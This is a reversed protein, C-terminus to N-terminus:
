LGHFTGFAVSPCKIDEDEVGEPLNLPCNKWKTSKQREVEKKGRLPAGHDKIVIEFSNLDDKKGIKGNGRFKAKGHKDTKFGSLNFSPGDNVIGWVPFVHGPALGDIKANITIKGKKRTLEAEGVELGRTDLIVTEDEVGKAFTTPTALMGMLLLLTAAGFFATTRVIM